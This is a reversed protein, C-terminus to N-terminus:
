RMVREAFARPDLGRCANFRECLADRFPYASASKVMEGVADEAAADDVVYEGNEDMAGILQQADTTAIADAVQDQAQLLAEEDSMEPNEEQIIEAVDLVAEIAAEELAAADVDGEEALVSEPDELAGANLAEEAAMIEEPSANEGVAAALDNAKKQMGLMYSAQFDLMHQAAPDGADALKQLCDQAQELDSTAASAQKGFVNMANRTMEEIIDKAYNELASAKKDIADLDAKTVEGKSANLEGAASSDSNTTTNGISTETAETPSTEMVNSAAGPQMQGEATVDADIIGDMQSSQLAEPNAGHTKDGAGDVSVDEIGATKLLAAADEQRKRLREALSAAM